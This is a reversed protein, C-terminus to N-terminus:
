INKFERCVLRNRDNDLKLYAVGEVDVGKNVVLIDVVRLVNCNNSSRSDIDVGEKDIIKPGKKTFEMLDIMKRDRAATSLSSLSGM